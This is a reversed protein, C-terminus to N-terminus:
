YPWEIGEGKRVFLHQYTKSLLWENAYRSMQDRVARNGGAYADLCNVAYRAILLLSKNYWLESGLPEKQFEPRNNFWQKLEIVRNKPSNWFFSPTREEYRVKDTVYSAFEELIKTFDLTHVIERRSCVLKDRETIANFVKVLRLTTGPAYAVADILRVSAHLGKECIILEGDYTEAEGDAAAKSGDRLLGTSTIFHWAYDSM